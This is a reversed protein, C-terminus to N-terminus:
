IAHGTSFIPGNDTENELYTLFHRLADRAHVPDIYFGHKKLRANPWQQKAQSATQFIPEKPYMVYRIVGILEVTFPREGIHARATHPYIRYDEVVVAHARDLLSCLGRWKKTDGPQIVGFQQIKFRPKPPPDGTLNAIVVGISEGPDIAIVLRHDDQPVSSGQSRRWTSLQSM